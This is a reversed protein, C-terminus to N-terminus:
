NSFFYLLKFSGTKINSHYFGNNRGSVALLPFLLKYNSNYLLSITIIFSSLSISFTNIRPALLFIRLIHTTENNNNNNSCNLLIFNQNTTPCCQEVCVGFLGFFLYVAVEYVFFFPLFNKDKAKKVVEYM